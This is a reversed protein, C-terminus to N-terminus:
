MQLVKQYAPLIKRKVIAEWDYNKVSSRANRSLAARLGADQSLKIMAESFSSPDDKALLGNWKHIIFQRNGATETAIVPLSCALYEITKLPPLNNFTPIIPIYSLGIDAASLFEPIQQYDVYGLFLVRDSVSLKRALSNLRNFDKGTGLIILRLNKVTKSAKWFAYILNEIRREPDLSGSYVLVLDREEIGYRSLIWRSHIPRFMRLNVGIPSIFINRDGRPKYKTVAKDILFTADFFASELEQIVKGLFYWPFGKIAGSRIDYIWRVSSPNNNILRILLSGAYSFIHIINPLNEKVIKELIRRAWCSFRINELSFRTTTKVPIRQVVVRDIIEHMMENPRAVAIVNVDHGIKALNRSYEFLAAAGQGPYYSFAIYSISLREM